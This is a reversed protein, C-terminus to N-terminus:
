LTWPTLSWIKARVTGIICNYATYPVIAQNHSLRNLTQKVNQFAHLVSHEYM